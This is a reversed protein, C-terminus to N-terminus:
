GQHQNRIIVSAPNGPLNMAGLTQSAATRIEMNADSEAITILRQVQEEALMPGCRKGSEALIAFMAIRLEAAEADDLAIKAIATQASPQCVTSLARALKQRLEADQTALASILQSEVAEPAFVPNREAGLRYLVDAAEKALATGLEASIETAGISRGVRQIEAQLGEPTVEAPVQGVRFDGQVLERVAPAQGEKTVIIVPVSSFRFENRLVGLSDAASPNTLDSALLILDIGPLESRVKELGGDLSADIIVDYGGARLASAVANATQTNADVVLANRAGGYLMVAEGLVPMLNQYNQFPESPGAAALALAARIRVMRDGFSLAEALPNRGTDYSMLSAPGATKRLAEIAGLAVAPDGDDVARALARLCYEPGASQAFYAASPYNEPRTQDLLGQPIQAERRFNAALWLALAAKNEPELLLAEECCRMCMIENFIPTPVEINQLLEERWYWVNATDLRADARLSPIDNYYESALTLYATAADIDPSVPVGRRELEGLAAVAADRIEPPTDSAERLELLYPVAQAYGIQGLAEILYRKTTNDGMSLAQVLPNLAARGIQPLTRLLPQLLHQKERDRLTMVAFPVAYEGSERLREVSNEFQRPPGALREINQLIRVPDAKIMREGVGLLRMVERASAGMVPNDLVLVLVEERKPVQDVFELLAVPDVDGRVLAEFNANAIAFQGVLAFYFGDDAQNLQETGTQYREYVQKGAEGLADAEADQELLILGGGLNGERLVRDGMLALRLPTADGAILEAFAAEAADSDRSLLAQMARQWTEWAQAARGTVFGDISVQVAYVPSATWCLLCLLALSLPGAIRSPRAPGPM